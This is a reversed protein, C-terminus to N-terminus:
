KKVIPYDISPVFHDLFFTLDSQDIFDTYKHFRIATFADVIM